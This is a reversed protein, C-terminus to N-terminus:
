QPPMREKKVAEDGSEESYGEQKVGTADRATPKGKEGGAHAEKLGDPPPPAPEERKRIQAGQQQQQPLHHWM